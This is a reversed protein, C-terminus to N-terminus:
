LYFHFLFDFQNIGGTNIIYRPQIELGALPFLEAGIIWQESTGTLQGADPDLFNYTLRLDVGTIVLAYFEITALNALTRQSTAVVKQESRNLDAWLTFRELVSVAAFGGFYVQEASVTRNSYGSAGLNIKIDNFDLLAEARLNFAKFKDNDVAGGSGNFVGATFNFIGPQIGAELGFDNGIVTHDYTKIGYHPIFQGLKVFGKLPLVKQALAYAQQGSQTYAYGITLASNLKLALYVNLQPQTFANAQATDTAFNYTSRVDAGFSFSESLKTSFDKLQAFDRLGEFTIEDRGYNSGYEIRQLGGTPNLHCTECRFGTRFAFRPHASVATAVFLFLALLFIPKKM